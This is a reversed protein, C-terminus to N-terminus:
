KLFWVNNECLLIIAKVKWSTMIVTFNACRNFLHKKSQICNWVKFEVMSVCFLRFQPPNLTRWFHGQFKKKELKDHIVCGRDVQSCLPTTLYYLTHQLSLTPWEMLEAFSWLYIPSSVIDFFGPPTLGPILITYTTREYKSNSTEINYLTLGIDYRYIDPLVIKKRTHLFNSSLLIVRCTSDWEHELQM